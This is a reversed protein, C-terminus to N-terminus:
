GCSSNARHPGVEKGWGSLRSARAPTGRLFKSPLLPERAARGESLALTWLLFATLIILALLLALLRGRKM